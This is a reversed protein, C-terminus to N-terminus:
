HCWISWPKDSTSLGARITIETIGDQFLRFALAEKQNEDDLITLGDCLIKSGDLELVLENYSKLFGALKVTFEEKAREPNVHGKGFLALTKVVKDLYRLTEKASAVKAQDIKVASDRNADLAGGAGDPKIDEPSM